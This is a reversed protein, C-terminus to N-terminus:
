RARERLYPVWCGGAVLGRSQSLVTADTALYSWASTGDPWHLRIRIYHTPCGEFVDLGALLGGDVEYLEGAVAGEGAAALGPYSGLDHLAYGSPSDLDGLHVAGAMREHAWGGRRLSGYVFIREAM